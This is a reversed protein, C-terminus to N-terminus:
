LMQTCEHINFSVHVYAYWVSGLAEVAVSWKRGPDWICLFRFLRSTTARVRLNYRTNHLQAFECVCVRTYIMFRVNNTTCISFEIPRNRIRQYTPHHFTGCHCVGVCTCMRRKEQIRICSSWNRHWDLENEVWLEKQWGLSNNLIKFYATFKIEHFNIEHFFHLSTVLQNSISDFDAFCMM